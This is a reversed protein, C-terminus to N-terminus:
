LKALIKDKNKKAIKNAPDAELAKNFAKLAEAQKGLKVYAVGISNWVMSFSPAIEVARRCYALGKQYDGREIYARGLNYWAKASKPSIQTVKHWYEIAKDVNEM